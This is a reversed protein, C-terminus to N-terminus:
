RREKSPLYLYACHSKGLGILNQGEFNECPTKSGKNVWQSRRKWGCFPKPNSHVKTSWYAHMALNSGRGEKQLHNSKFDWLSLAWKSKLEGRLNQGKRGIHTSVWMCAIKSQTMSQGLWRPLQTNSSAILWQCSSSSTTFQVRLWKKQLPPHSSDLNIFYKPNNAHHQFVGSSHTIISMYIVITLNLM